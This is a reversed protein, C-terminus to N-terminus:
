PTKGHYLLWDKLTKADVNDPGANGSLKGAITKM